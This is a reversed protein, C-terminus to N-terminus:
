AKKDRLFWALSAAFLAAMGVVIVLPGVLATAVVIGGAFALALMGWLVGGDSWAAKIIMWVGGFLIFACLATFVNTGCNPGCSSGGHGGRAYASIDLLAGLDAV